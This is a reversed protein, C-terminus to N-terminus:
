EASWYGAMLKSSDKNGYSFHAPNVRLTEGTWLSQNVRNWRADRTRIDAKSLLTLWLLGEIGQLIEVKQGKKFQVSVALLLVSPLWWQRLRPPFASLWRLLYKVAQLM